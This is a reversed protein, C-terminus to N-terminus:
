RPSAVVIVDRGDALHAAFSLQGRDNFGIAAFNPMLQAVSGLLPDGDVIVEHIAGDRWTFLGHRGADLLAMFAVSGNNNIALSPTPAHIFDRFPPMTSDAVRTVPGGNGVYIGTTGSTLIVEFAVTGANNIAPAPDVDAFLGSTNDAILTTPGGNGTFISSRTPFGNADTVNAHFAVTGSDNISTSPQFFAFDNVGNRTTYLAFLERNNAAFLADRCPGVSFPSVCVPDEVVGFFAVTGANNM